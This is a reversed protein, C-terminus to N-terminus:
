THKETQKDNDHMYYHCCEIFAVNELMCAM